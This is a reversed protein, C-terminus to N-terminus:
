FLNDFEALLSILVSAEDMGDFERVAQAVVHSESPFKGSTSAKKVNPILIFQLWQAFSMSDAAFAARFDYQEPELPQEQWMGIRKMEGEIRELQALVTQPEPM